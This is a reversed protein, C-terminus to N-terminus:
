NLAFLLASSAGGGGGGTVTVAGTQGNVSIVPSPAWAGDGRLFTTSDATGNGLRATAFVGSSVDSATHTHGVASKGDLATQTLTSIPKSADSTNDVNALGVESKTHTHGASSKGDLAAQTATSIPKNADSTNDVSGLGVDASTLTVVGTKGAVSAVPAPTGANELDYISAWTMDGRLYTGSSASGSGLRGADITGSAIASAEHTHGVASKGDLATQTATSIPKNADSTNDVNGLGVDTALHTHGVASKGDLATQTATSIPKNLDSTNDVNGLGFESTAHTHGVASKGDLATQTATSIPKNLDSTNDVNGLGVDSSALVVVGTRGSVSQVPSSGAVVESLSAWTQDGRLFTTADATGSALREAGITGSAVDTASHTHGVASKGDLATQTATSIPKNLDSTNDVNGLGVDGKVLTVAGTKGAVSLMVPPSTDLGVDITAGVSTVNVVITM